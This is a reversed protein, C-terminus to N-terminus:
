EKIIKKHRGALRRKTLSDIRTLKGDREIFGTQSIVYGAGNVYTAHRMNLYCLQSCYKVNTRRGIIKKDCLICKKSVVM